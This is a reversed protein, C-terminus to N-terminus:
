NRAPRQGAHAWLIDRTSDLSRTNRNRVQHERLKGTSTPKLVRGCEPCRAFTALGTYTRTQFETAGSGACLQKSM